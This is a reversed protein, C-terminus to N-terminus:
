LQGVDAAPAWGTQGAVSVRVFDEYTDLVRVREGARAVRETAPSQPDPAARLTVRDELIIGPRGDSFMGRKAALGGASALAILAVVPAAIGLALRPTEGEAVRRVLLIIFFLAVSVVVTATLGPEGFAKVTSEAFHVDRALEAEGEEDARGRALAEEAEALAARTDEDGPRYLLAREFHFVARALEHERAFCVGRNHEVDPDRVGAEYLSSYGQEAEGCDGAMAADTAQRFTEVLSQALVSPAWLTLVAAGAALVGLACNQARKM